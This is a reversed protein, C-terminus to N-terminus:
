PASCSSPSGSAASFIRPAEAEAEAERAARPLIAASLAEGVVNGLALPVISAIFYLDARTTSGLVVAILLVQGFAGARELLRGALLLIGIFSASRQAFLQPQPSEDV